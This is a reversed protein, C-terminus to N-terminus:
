ETERQAAGAWGLETRILIRADLKLRGGVFANKKITNEIIAALVTKGSGSAGSINITVTPEGGLDAEIAYSGRRAEDNNLVRQDAM